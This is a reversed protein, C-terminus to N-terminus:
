TARCRGMTGDAPPASRVARRSPLRLRVRGGFCDETFLELVTGPQVRRVAPQGGFAWAWEDPEPRYSMVTLDSTM